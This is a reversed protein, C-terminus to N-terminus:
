WWGIPQPENRNQISEFIADAGDALNASAAGRVSRAGGAARVYQPDPPATLTGVVTGGGITGLNQHWSTVPGNFLLHPVVGPFLTEALGGLNVVGANYVKAINAPQSLDIAQGIWLAMFAIDGPWASIAGEDVGIMFPQTAHPALLADPIYPATNGSLFDFYGGAVGNILIHRFGTAATTDVSIAVHYWTGVALDTQCRTDLVWQTDNWCQIRLRTTDAPATGVQTTRIRLVTTGNAPTTASEEGLIAATGSPKSTLRLTALFTLKKSGALATAPKAVQVYASGDGPFRAGDYLAPAAGAATVTVAGGSRNILRVTGGDAPLQVATTGPQVILRDGPRAALTAGARAAVTPNAALDSKGIIINNCGELTGISGTSAVNIAKQTPVPTEDFRCQRMEMRDIPAEIHLASLSVPNSGNTLSTAKARVREMVVTGLKSPREGPYRNRFMIGGQLCEVDRMTLHDIGAGSAAEVTWEIARAHNTTGAALGDCGVIVHEILIYEVVAAAAQTNPPYDLTGGAIGRAQTSWCRSNRLTIHRAPLNLLWAPSGTLAAYIAWGDDGGTVDIKDYVQNTGGGIRIAAKGQGLPANKIIIRDWTHNNGYIRLAVGNNLEDDQGWADITLDSVAVNHAAIGIISGDSGDGQTLLGRVYGGRWEINDLFDTATAPIRFAGQAVGGGRNWGSCDIIAGDWFLRINSRLEIYGPIYGPQGEQGVPRIVYRAGDGFVIPRDTGSAFNILKQLKSTVTQGADVEDRLLLDARIPDGGLRKAYVLAPAVVENPGGPDVTPAALAAAAKAELAAELGTITHIPQSGSHTARDRLAADSSNATAGDAIGALKARESPRMALRNASDDIADLSPLISNTESSVSKVIVAGTGDFGLVKNAREGAAPLELSMDTDAPHLHLTRGIEADIQQLAGTLNDLEANLVKARFEGSEQFASRRQIASQRRITVTAGPPPPQEFRIAGGPTDSQSVVTFAAERRERDVFVEVDDADSIPFAFPFEAQSGDAVYQVRPRLAGVIPQM